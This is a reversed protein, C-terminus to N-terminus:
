CGEVRCAVVHHHSAKHTMGRCLKIAITHQKQKFNAHKCLTQAQLQEAQITEVRATICIHFTSITNADHLVDAAVM